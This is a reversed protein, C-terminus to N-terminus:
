FLHPKLVRQMIPVLADKDTDESLFGLEERAPVKQSTAFFFVELVVERNKRDGSREDGPEASSGLHVVASVIIDRDKRPVQAVLGFDLLCLKGADDGETIKLLNGPHPDGHFFGIDGLAPALLFGDQQPLTSLKVGNVWQSLMVRRTTLSMLPTPIIIKELSDEGLSDKLLEEMRLANLAENRFDLETYLGEAFTETLAIYDTNLACHRQVKVAVEEGTERLTARYVQALSAAAIPEESFTSFIEDLPKGMEKEIVKRAEENSFTEIDDQLSCSVNRHDARTIFPTSIRLFRSWREALDGPKTDRLQWADWFKAIREVSYILPLGDDDVGNVDELGELAAQQSVKQLREPIPTVIGKQGDVLFGLSQGIPCAELEEHVRFGIERLRRVIKDKVEQVRLEDVGAVNLNDAYPILIVEKDSLDPPAKSEVVVRDISLGGAEICLHTHVRQAVWMAWSWGMPIVRLTPFTWGEADCDVTAMDINWDQLASKALAPLCFLSQLESPLALSYFYDKIDSQALYLTSGEPIAVTFLWKAKDMRSSATAMLLMTVTLDFMVVEGRRARDVREFINGLFDMEYAQFSEIQDALKLFTECSILPDARREAWQQLASWLEVKAFDNKTLIDRLNAPPNSLDQIDDDNDNVTNDDGNSKM